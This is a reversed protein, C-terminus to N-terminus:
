VQPWIPACFPRVLLREVAAGNYHHGWNPLMSHVSVWAECASLDTLWGWAPKKDTLHNSFLRDRTLPVPSLVHSIGLLADPKRLWLHNQGGSLM